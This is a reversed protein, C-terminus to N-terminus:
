TLMGRWFGAEMSYFLILYNKEELLGGAGNHGLLVFLQGVYLDLNLGAVATIKKKESEKMCMKTITSLKEFGLDFQKTLGKIRIGIRSSLKPDIPEIQASHDSNAGAPNSQAASPVLPIDLPTMPDSGRLCAFQQKWWRATFLFYWPEYVGYQKPVVKDVYWALALIILADLLMWMISTGVAFNYSTDGLNSFSAGIGSSELDTIKVAGLAFATPPFICVADKTSRSVNDGSVAFFPILMAYMIFPSAMGAIKASDFFASLLIAMAVLSTVFSYLFVFMLAFSTHPFLFVNCLITIVLTLVAFGVLYMVIWSLMYATANVGVMHLGEKIKREKEDVIQKVLRSFPWLFALKLYLGLIPAMTEAFSDSIHEAEPLPFITVDDLAADPTIPQKSSHQIIYQDVFFQLTLLGSDYYNQTFTSNSYAEAPDKTLSTTPIDTGNTRIVYSWQYNNSAAGVQTIIVAKDVTQISPDLDYNSDGLLINLEDESNFFRLLGGQVTSNVYANVTYNTVSNDECYCWDMTVGSAVVQSMLNAHVHDRIAAATPADSPDHAAFAIFQNNNRLGDYWATLSKECGCAATHVLALSGDSLSRGYGPDSFYNQPVTTKSFASRLGVLILVFCIPVLFECM